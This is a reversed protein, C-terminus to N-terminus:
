NNSAGAFWSLVKWEVKAKFKEAVEPENAMFTMIRSLNERYAIAYTLLSGQEIDTADFLLDLIKEGTSYATARWMFRPMEELLVKRRVEWALDVMQRVATKFDNLTTLHIDWELHEKFTTAGQERIGEIVRDIAIVLDEITSYPIRIKHYLPVMLAVPVARVIGAKGGNCKWSTSLSFSSRPRPDDPLMLAAGTQGFEMRIFPGVQDDHVYLKDIRSAKALFGSRKDQDDGGKKLPIPDKHGLSYGTVAVAHLDRRFKPAEGDCYDVLRITMLIPIKGQLYAYVNNKLLHENEPNIYFPELGHNEIARAMQSMSLGNSPLHRTEPPKSQSSQTGLRTIEVPSPIHHHFIMGTGQLISWLASTSCAAVVKDQEQFALSHVELNLGFLNARYCRTIPYYRRGEPPFTKLCTRGIITKPLPKVVVFGLYEDEILQPDRRRTPDELLEEFAKEDFELKFFHLRTCWRNYPKFCRVYYGTFDELYDHDVYKKEVVITRTELKDFYDRFYACHLKAEVIALDTGAERALLRKLTDISYPQIEYRKKTVPPITASEHPITKKNSM